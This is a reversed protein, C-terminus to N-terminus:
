IGLQEFKGGHYQVISTFGHTRLLELAEDFWFDLNAADHSDSSLILQGHHARLEDLLFAAPYPQTRLGRCIAGTNLEFLPTVKLCAILAECAADRYAPSEEDIYGYKACLDFHGLIDPRQRRTCEVYTDFYTKAYAVSDGGFHRNIDELQWDRIGDVSRYEGDLLLYHCDGIMYDYLERDCLETRGDLELGLCIEIRDRYKEQLRRVERIYAPIHVRRMCYRSDFSTFSHDSFGLSVMGKEIASLVNEEPTHVGDSFITHTHLNSHRM